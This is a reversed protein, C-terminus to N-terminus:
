EFESSIWTMQTKLHGWINLIHILSLEPLYNRGVGPHKTVDKILHIVVLPVPFLDVFIKSFVILDGYYNYFFVANGQSIDSFTDPRARRWYCLFLQFSVFIFFLSQDISHDISHYSWTLLFLFYCAFISTKSYVLSCFPFNKIWVM